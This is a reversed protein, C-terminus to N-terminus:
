HSNGLHPTYTPIESIPSAVTPAAPQMVQPQYLQYPSPQAGTGPTQYMSAYPNFPGVAMNSRKNQLSMKSLTATDMVISLGGYVSKHKVPKKDGTSGATDVSSSTADLNDAPAPAVAPADAAAPAPAPPAAPAAAPAMAPAAPAKGSAAGSDAAFSVGAPLALVCFVVAM